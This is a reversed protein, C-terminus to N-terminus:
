NITTKEKQQFRRLRDTSLKHRDQTLMWVLTTKKIHKIKGSADKIKFTHKNDSKTNKLNLTNGCNPFLVNACYIDDDNSDVTCAHEEVAVFEFLPSFMEDEVPSERERETLLEFEERSEDGEEISLYVM